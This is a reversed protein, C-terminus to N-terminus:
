RNVEDRIAEEQNVIWAVAAALDGCRYDPPAAPAREAYGYDIWVTKTGAAQGAEIDRWRDGIMYSGELEVSHKRAAELLLGPRPKRCPCEDGDDHFCVLFDDIPLERALGAHIEEVTARSTKGRAVDPQNTVVILLFGLEGLRGLEGAAGPM